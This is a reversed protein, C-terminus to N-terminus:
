LARKRFPGPSKQSFLGAIIQCYHLRRTSHPVAACLGSFIRRSDQLDREQLNAKLLLYLARKHFSVQSVCECVRVCMCDCVCVCVCACVCVYVYVRVCVCVCVFPAARRWRLCIHIYACERWSYLDSECYAWVCVITFARSALGSKFRLDRTLKSIRFLHRRTLYSLRGGSDFYKYHAMNTYHHLHRSCFLTPM